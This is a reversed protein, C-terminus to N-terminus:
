IERNIWHYIKLSAASVPNTAEKVSMLMSDDDSSCLLTMNANDELLMHEFFVWSLQLSKWTSFHGDLKDFLDKLKLEM